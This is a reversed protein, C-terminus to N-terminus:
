AVSSVQRPTTARWARRARGVLVTAPTAPGTRRPPASRWRKTHRGACTSMGPNAEGTMLINCTACKYFGSPEPRPHLPPPPPAAAMNHFFVSLAPLTFCRLLRSCCCSPLGGFLHAVSVPGCANSSVCGAAAGSGTNCVTVWKTARFSETEFQSNSQNEANQPCFHHMVCRREGPNALSAIAGPALTTLMISLVGADWHLGRSRRWYM